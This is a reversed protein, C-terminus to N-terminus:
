EATRAPHKVFCDFEVDLVAIKEIGSMVQELPVLQVNQNLDTSLIGNHIEIFNVGPCFRRDLHPSEDL